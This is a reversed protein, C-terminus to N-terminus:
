LLSVPSYISKGALSFNALKGNFKALFVIGSAGSVSFTSVGKDVTIKGEKGGRVYTKTSNPKGSKGSPSLSLSLRSSDEPVPGVFFSNYGVVGGDVQGGEESCALSITTVTLDDGEAVYVGTVAIRGATCNLQYHITQANEVVVGSEGM